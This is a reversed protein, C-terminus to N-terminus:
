KRCLHLEVNYSRYSSDVITISKSLYNTKCTSYNIGLINKNDDDDTINFQYNYGADVFTKNLEKSLTSKAYSCLTYSNDNPCLKQMTKSNRCDSVMLSLTTDNSCKSFYLSNDFLVNLFNSSKLKILDSNQEPASSKGKNIIFFFLFIIIIVAIIVGMIASQSKKRLKM